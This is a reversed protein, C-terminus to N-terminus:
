WGTVGFGWVVVMGLVLLWHVVFRRGFERDSAKVINLVVDVSKSNHNQRAHIFLM